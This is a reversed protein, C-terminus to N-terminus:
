HSLLRPQRVRRDPADLAGEAQLRTSGLGELQRGIRVEHVLRAVNYAEREVRRVARQHETHILLALDLREVACLRHQGADRLPAHVVILAVAGGRQEGGEINGGVRDDALAILAVPGPLEEIEELHDVSIDGLAQIDM